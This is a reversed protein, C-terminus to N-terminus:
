LFSGIGKGGGPWIHHFRHDAMILKHNAHKSLVTKSCHSTVPEAYMLMVISPMSLSSTHTQVTTNVHHTRKIFRESVRVSCVGMSESANKFSYHTPVCARVRLGPCSDPKSLIIKSSGLTRRDTCIQITWVQTHTCMNGETYRSVVHTRLYM